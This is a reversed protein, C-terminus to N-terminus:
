RGNFDVAGFKTDSLLTYALSITGVTQHRDAIDTYYADRRSVVYKLTIAHHGYVRVTFAADGRIIHESGQSETSAVGSVYYARGTMDFNAVNGFM